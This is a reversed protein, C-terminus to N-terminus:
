NTVALVVSYAPVTITAKGNGVTFTGQPQMDNWANTLYPTVATGKLGTVYISRPVSWTNAMLVATQTWEGNEFAMLDVRAACQDQSGGGVQLSPDSTTMTRVTWGPRVTTFLKKLAWYRKSYIPTSTGTLLTQGDPASSSTAYGNWWAWYSHPVIVMAAGIARFMDITKTLESNSNLELESFETLWADKPHSIMADQMLFINCQGYMHHAYGGVAHNMSSNNLSPFGPGGLYGPSNTTYDYYISAGYTGNEPGFLGISSLGNYDFAGRVDQLVQQWVAPTYKCGDYTATYEPENQISLMAPLQLGSAKISLMVKTLYAVFAAEKDTRLWGAGTTSNNTKMSAPPSWVSMIYSSVGHAQASKLKAIYGNLLAQNIVTNAVTSGSIYLAPDVRERVFTVGLAYVANEIAPKNWFAGTGGAPYVGWGKVLQGPHASVAASSYITTTGSADATLGRGLAPSSKPSTASDASSCASTCAVFTAALSLVVLRAPPVM